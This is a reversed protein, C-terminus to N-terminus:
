LHAPHFILSPPLSPLVHHICPSFSIKFHSWFPYLPSSACIQANGFKPQLGWRRDKNKGVGWMWGGEKGWGKMGRDEAEEGAATDGATRPEPPTVSTKIHSRNRIVVWSFAGNAKTRRSLHSAPASRLPSAISVFPLPPMESASSPPVRHLHCVSSSITSTTM